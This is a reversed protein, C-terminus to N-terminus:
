GCGILRIQRRHASLLAGCLGDGGGNTGPAEEVIGLAPDCRLGSLMGYDVGIPAHEGTHHVSAPTSPQQQHDAVLDLRVMWAAHATGTLV